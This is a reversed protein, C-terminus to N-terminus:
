MVLNNGQEDCYLLVYDMLVFFVIVVGGVYKGVNCIVGELKFVMELLECVDEDCDFLEQLQLEQELVKILIM